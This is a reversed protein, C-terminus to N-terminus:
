QCRCLLQVFFKRVFFLFTKLIDYFSTFRKLQVFFEDKQIKLFGDYYETAVFLLKAQQWEIGTM